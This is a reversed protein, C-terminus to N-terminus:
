EANVELGVGEVCVASLASTNRKVSYTSESLSNVNDAYVMLQNTRNLKLGDQNPKVKRFVYSYELALTSFCHRYLM